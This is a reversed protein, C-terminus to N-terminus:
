EELWEIAQEGTELLRPGVPGVLPTLKSLKHATREVNGDFVSGAADAIRSGTSLAASEGLLTDAAWEISNDYRSEYLPNVVNLGREAVGLLGSAGVARQIKEPTDLYPTAHGFKLLDKLYQSLFGLMIMTAMVAFANYKIAPTQGKFLSRYMKPLHNAQFTSIFGHFQTFLAFRPDQYLLPRNASQPLVIADNVFNFTATRIQDDIFQQDEETAQRTKLENNLNVMDEVNIGLNRLADRAEVEENTLADLNANAYIDLKDAFYDVAPAARLARTYDTWQKLGIIHFFRDIMYRQSHKTETVGTVTAAGVEWEFFGVDKAARRGASIPDVNQFDLMTKGMAKTEKLAIDSLEKINVRDMGRYVMAFEVLSSITALPLGVLMTYTMLNKQIALAGKGFSTQPRHYNGSEADLYDKMGRAIKDVEKRANEPSQGDDILEQEAEQLLENLVSNGPGVYESYTTYRAASKAANSLNRLLNKEMWKNAFEPHESLGLTRSKHSTPQFGGKEIISFAEDLDQVADIGLIDEALKRADTASVKFDKQLDNIFEQRNKEIAAKDLSRVKWAYDKTYGLEPNHVSQDQYLKNTFSRTQADLNKLAPIYQEYDTNKLSDWNVVGDKKAAQNYAEYAIDSIKDLDTQSDTLGFSEAIKKPTNLMNKYEALRLHKKTEFSAGSFTNYLNGGFLSALKRLAPSREQLPEKFIHRTAGRWLGPVAELLGEFSKFWDGPASRSARESVDEAPRKRQAAAENTQKILDEHSRVRGHQAVEEEAWLNQAAIKNADAPATRYAVDVWKGTDYATGPVSFAGGLTAGGVAAQIIRDNFENWDWDKAGNSGKYAALAAITEQGVETLGESASGILASQLFAKGTNAATIQQKAFASANDMLKAAELRTMNWVQQEPIGQKAAAEVVQKRGERSLLSANALGKIGLRDLVAMSIGAGVALSANKDVDDTDGMENWVQGAYVAAPATLTLGGTAPALAAGGITLAMYPLSMAALNGVYEVASGIDEVERYDTIFHPQNGIEYQVDEKNAEGWNELGEFGAEHGILEAMGYFGESVGKLGTEWAKSLPNLARNDLTRDKSRFAVTHSLSTDKNGSLEAENTAIGKLGGGFVTEDNIAEDILDAAIDFENGQGGGAQRAMKALLGFNRREANGLEYANPDVLGAADVTEAWSNGRADQLDALPRGHVDFEGTPVLNTFGKQKALDAFAVTQARGGVDNATYAEISGDANKIPKSVERTNYGTLRYSQGGKNITDADHWYGDEGFSTDANSIKRRSDSLLGEDALMDALTTM